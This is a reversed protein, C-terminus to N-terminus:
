FYISESSIRGTGILKRLRRNVNGKWESKDRGNTM